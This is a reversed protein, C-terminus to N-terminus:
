HQQAVIHFKYQLEFNVVVPLCVEQVAQCAKTNIGRCVAEHQFRDRRSIWTQM